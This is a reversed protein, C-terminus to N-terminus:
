ARSILGADRRRQSPRGQAAKRLELRSRGGGNARSPGKADAPRGGSAKGGEAIGPATHPHGLQGRATDEWAWGKRGQPVWKPSLTPVPTGVGLSSTFSRPRPALCLSRRPEPAARGTLLAPGLCAPPRSSHRPGRDRGHVSSRATGCTWAVQEGTEPRQPGGAGGAAPEVKSTEKLIRM